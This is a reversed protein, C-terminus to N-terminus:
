LIQIKELKKIVDDTEIGMEAYREKAIKYAQEILQTIIM